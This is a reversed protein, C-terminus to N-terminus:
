HFVSLPTQIARGGVAVWVMGLREAEAAGLPDGLLALPLAKGVMRKSKERGGERFLNANKM